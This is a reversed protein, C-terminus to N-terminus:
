KILSRQVRKSEALIMRFIRNIFKPSLKFQRALQTKDALIQVERQPQHIKGHNIKKWAATNIVMQQRTSLLRLIKRDIVDLRRRLQILTM